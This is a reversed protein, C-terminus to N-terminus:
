LFRGEGFPSLITVTRSHSARVSAVYPLRAVGALRRM